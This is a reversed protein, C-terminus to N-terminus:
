RRERARFVVALAGVVQTADELDPEPQDAEREVLVGTTAYKVLLELQRTPLHEWSGLLDPV